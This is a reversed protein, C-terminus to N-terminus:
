IFSMFRTEIPKYFRSLTECAERNTVKSNKRVPRIREQFLVNPQWILSVTLDTSLTLIIHLLVGQDISKTQM